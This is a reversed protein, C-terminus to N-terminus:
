EPLQSVTFFRIRLNGVTPGNGAVRWKGLCRREVTFTGAVPPLEPLLFGGTNKGELESM